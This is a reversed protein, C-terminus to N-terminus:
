SDNKNNGPEEPKDLRSVVMMTVDDTHPENGVWTDLLRAMTELLNAPDAESHTLLANQLREV